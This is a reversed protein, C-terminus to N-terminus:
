PGGDRTADGPELADWLLEPHELAIHHDAEAVNIVRASGSIKAIHAQDGIPDAVGHFITVPVSAPLVSSWNFDLILSQLSHRYADWTHRGADSSVATPWRPAMVAMMRGSIDRNVCNIRCAREAWKTDLAFLRGMPGYEKGVSESAAQRPYIPPGWLYVHRARRRNRDAWTLAIAASMSHAAVVVDSEALDLEALAQDLADVHADVGFDTREEDLSHGFGLLDVIVVRRHRSLDDYFAGFYNGTAGLGHLLVLVQEATRDTPGSDLVSLPGATRRQFSSAHWRRVLPSARHALQWGAVAVATAAITM